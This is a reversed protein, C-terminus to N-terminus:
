LYISVLEGPIKKILMFPRSLVESEDNQARVEAVGGM